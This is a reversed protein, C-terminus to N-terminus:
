SGVENCGVLGLIGGTLLLAASIIQFNIVALAGLVIIFIAWGKQGKNIGFIATIEAITFLWGIFLLPGAWPIGSGSVLVGVGLLGIISLVADIGILLGAIKIKEM